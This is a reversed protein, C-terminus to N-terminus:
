KALYRSWDDMLTRRKALLDTRNYAAEIKNAKGHALAAECVEPAHETREACWDRFSSRFGHITAEEGDASKLGKAHKRFTVPSIPVGGNSGPFVFAGGSKDRYAEMEGLIEIARPALPVRHERRAKMREPGIVWLRKTMDIESWKAGRVEGSRAATLILFELAAKIPASARGARIHAIADGVRAYPVASHHRVAARKHSVLVGDLALCPNDTRYGKAIARAMVVEMRQRVRKATEPVKHQIAEIVSLCDATTIESVSKNGIRPYAHNRLSTRWAEGKDALTAARAAIIEGAVEAFTPTSRAGEKRARKEAIPNRGRHVGRAADITAERAEGLTVVRASGIGMETRAGGPMTARYIWSAGGARGVVLWLGGGDAYRRIKPGPRQALKVARATLRNHAGPRMAAKVAKVIADDNTAARGARIRAARAERTAAATSDALPM